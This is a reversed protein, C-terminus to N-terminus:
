DCQLTYRCHPFTSCGWFQSGANAGKQTTKLVMKAECRPCFKHEDALLELIEPDHRAGVAALKRALGDADLIEIGREEALQKAPLTYGCLTVYMGRQFDEIHLAGVFERIEKIGVESKRWQKCQVAWRLWPKEIVMDIGGDPNAGGRRKVVYGQKEFLRAVVKEFQFWDITRLRELLDAPSLPPKQAPAPPPIPATNVPPVIIPRPSVWVPPQYRRDDAATPPKAPPVPSPSPSVWVQPQYRRDDAAATPKEPSKATVMELTALNYSRLPRAARLTRRSGLNWASSHSHKVLKRAVLFGLLGFIAIGLILLVVTGLASMLQRFGPSVASLLIFLGGLAAIGETVPDANNRRKAMIVFPSCNRELKGAGPPTTLSNLHSFYTLKPIVM